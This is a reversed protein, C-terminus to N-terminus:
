HVSNGRSLDWRRTRCGLRAAGHGWLGLAARWGAAGLLPVRRPAARGCFSVVQLSKVIADFKCAFTRGQREELGRAGPQNRDYIYIYIYETKTNKDPARMRR